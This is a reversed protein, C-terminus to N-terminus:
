GLIRVENLNWMFQQLVETDLLQNRRENALRKVDERKTMVHARREEIRNLYYVIGEM